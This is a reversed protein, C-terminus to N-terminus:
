DDAVLHHQCNNDFSFVHFTEVYIESTADRTSLSKMGFIERIREDDEIRKGVHLAVFQHSVLFVETTLQVFQPFSKTVNDRYNLEM